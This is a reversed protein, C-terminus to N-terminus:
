EHSAALVNATIDQMMAEMAMVFVMLARYDKISMVAYGDGTSHRRNKVFVASMYGLGGPRRDVSAALQKLYGPLDIVKEHKAEVTWDGAHIDGQEAEASGTRKAPISSQRLYNVVETEWSTGLAKNKNAM